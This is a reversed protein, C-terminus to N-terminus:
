WVEISEMLDGKIRKVNQTDARISSALCVVKFLEFDGLDNM